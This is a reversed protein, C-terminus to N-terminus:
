PHMLYLILHKLHTQEMTEFGAEQAMRGVQEEGLRYELPPGLEGPQYPWELVAVRMRALRHAEKLALSADDTEHLVLGLFVLDFAQNPFPIAEAPATQFRGEPVYRQAVVIMEPNVDVGVIKLGRNTFAEAFLGSGTGVDLMNKLALGALCLDVVKEVELHAIRGPSRLVEVKRNFRRDHM